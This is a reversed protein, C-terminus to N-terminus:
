FKIPEDKSNLFFKITGDQSVKIAIGNNALVGAATAGTGTVGSAPANSIDVVAGYYLLEGETSIITAGDSSLIRKFLSTFSRDAINIKEESFRNLTKTLVYKEITSSDEPIWIITSISNKSCFLIFYLIASYVNDPLRIASLVKSKLFSYDRYRWINEQNIFERGKSNIVSIDIGNETRILVDSGLLVNSLTANSLFDTATSTYVFIDLVKECSSDTMYLTRTGDALYWFRREIEDFLPPNAKLPLLIGDSGYNNRQEFLYHSSTIILGTSFHKGEFTTNRLKFFQEIVFEGKGQSIFAPFIASSVIKIMMQDGIHQISNSFNRDSCSSLTSAIGKSIANFVKIHRGIMMSSFQIGLMFIEQKQRIRCALIVRNDDIYYVERKPNDLISIGFSNKFTYIPSYVFQVSASLLEELNKKPLGELFTKIQQFGYIRTFEKM